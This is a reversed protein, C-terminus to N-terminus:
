VTNIDNSGVGASQLQLGVSVDQKLVNDANQHMSKQVGISKMEISNSTNVLSGQIGASLM